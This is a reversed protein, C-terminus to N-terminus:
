PDPPLYEIFHAAFQPPVALKWGKYKDGGIRQFRKYTRKADDKNECTTVTFTWNGSDALYEASRNVQNGDYTIQSLGFDVRKMVASPTIDISLGIVQLPPETKIAFGIESLKQTWVGAYDVDYVEVVERMKLYEAAAEPVLLHIDNELSIGLADAILPTKVPAKVFIDLDKVPRGHELDRLAGGCMLAEPHVSRIARILKTWETPVDVM